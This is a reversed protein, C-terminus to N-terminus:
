EADLKKSVTVTGIWKGSRGKYVQGPLNKWEDEEKLWYYGCWYAGREGAITYADLGELYTETILSL